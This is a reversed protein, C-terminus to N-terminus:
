SGRCGSLEWVVTIWDEERAIEVAKLGADALASEVVALRNAVIGSGIFRGGPALHAPLEPALRAIAQAHINAVVVQARATLGGFLDGIIVSVRDAVGNIRANDRAVAAATADCDTVLARAAGLKVAAIALVGSGTGIDVVTDGARLHSQLAALCGRTTAHLGTGFAVGPDITVNVEADAPPELWSPTVALRGVRLPDFSDRWVQEWAQEDVPRIVVAGAGVALGASRADALRAHIAGTRSGLRDDAPAYATLVVRDSGAAESVGGCASRMADAVADAAEPTVTVTIEAWRSASM